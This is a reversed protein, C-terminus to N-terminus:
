GLEIEAAVAPDMIDVGRDAARRYRVSLERDFEDRSLGSSWYPIATIRAPDLGDRLAQARLERVPRVEGGLWLATRAPPAGTLETIEAWGIRPLRVRRHRRRDIDRLRAARGALRPPGPRPSCWTSPSARASRGPSPPWRARLLPIASRSWTSWTEPRCWATNSVSSASGTVPSFGDLWWGGRHGLAAFEVATGGPSFDLATYSRVTPREAQPPWSPLYKEGLAPLVPAEGPRPPIFVKFVPAAGGPALEAFAPSELVVRAYGSRDRDLAAIAAQAMVMGPPPGIDPGTANAM